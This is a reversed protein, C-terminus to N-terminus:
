ESACDEEKVYGNDKAWQELENEPFVDEPYHKSVIYEILVDDSVSIEFDEVDNSRLNM